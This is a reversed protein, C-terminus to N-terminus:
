PWWATFIGALTGLVTGSCVEILAHRRLYLRSWFVLGALALACFGANSGLRFLVMVCYFAFIVHLSIKSVQNIVAAVMLLALTVAAGRLVFGPSQMVLLAVTGVASILIARPYFAAREDPVSVDADSWRGSRVGRILLLANPLVVALLLALLVSVGIRNALRYWVVLGLSISVFVLPHGVWSVARAVRSLGTTGRESVNVLVETTM